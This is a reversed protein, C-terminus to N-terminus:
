YISTCLQGTKVSYIIGTGCGRYDVYIGNSYYGGTNNYNNNYYGYCPQGTTVSYNANASCGYADLYAGNYSNNSYSTQTTTEPYSYTYTTYSSTTPQTQYDINSSDYSKNIVPIYSQDRNFGFFSSTPTGSYDANYVSAGLSNGYSYSLTSRTTNSYQGLILAITIVGLIVMTIFIHKNTIENM